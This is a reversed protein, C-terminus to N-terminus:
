SKDRRSIQGAPAVKRKVYKGSSTESVVMGKPSSRRTSYNTSQEAGTFVQIRTEFAELKTGFLDVSAIIYPDGIHRIPQNSAIAVIKLNITDTAALPHSLAVTIKLNITAVVIYHHSPIAATIPLLPPHLPSSIMSSSAVVLSPCRHYLRCPRRFLNLLARSRYLRNRCLSSSASSPM